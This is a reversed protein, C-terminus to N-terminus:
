TTHQSMIYWSTGVWALTVTDNENLIISGGENFSDPTISAAGSNSNIYQKIQGNNAGDPLTIAIASAANLRVMSRGSSDIGSGTITSYNYEVSTNIKVGGEGKGELELSINADDGKPSIRPANNTTSNRIQIYNVASPTPQIEIVKASNTDNIVDVNPEVLASSQITKNTITQTAEAMILTDDATLLPFNVARDATIAGPTIVYSFTKSPNNFKPAILVPQEMTKNQLLQTNESMVLEGDADPFTVIRDTGSNTGSGTLSIKGPGDTKFDLGTLSFGVNSVLFGSEGLFDYVEQFNENTKKGATRLSDGSGDNATTGTNIIQRSM